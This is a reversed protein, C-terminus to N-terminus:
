YGIASFRSDRLPRAEGRSGSVSVVLSADVKESLRHQRLGPQGHLRSEGCLLNM